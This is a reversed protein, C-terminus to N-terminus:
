HWSKSISLHRGTLGAFGGVTTLRLKRCRLRKEREILGENVSTLSLPDRELGL